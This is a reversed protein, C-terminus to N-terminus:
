TNSQPYAHGESQDSAATSAHRHIWRWRDAHYRLAVTWRIPVQLRKGDMELHITLTIAVVAQDDVVSVHTWHWEFRNAQAESFNRLFLDRVEARGVCLEDAGTGIVSINESEDFVEMLADIDKACYARAYGELTALVADTKLSHSM